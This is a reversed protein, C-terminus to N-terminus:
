TYRRNTNNNEQGLLSSEEDPVASKNPAATTANRQLTVWIAAGIILASGVFSEVPPTTGWVVREIILAFVMQMYILNTARGAKERQLGETLLVQLLFGSVGISLLLLWQATSQPVKLGLDPHVTLVLFSTVTASVAFYNVSVLSHVRKGIVRITAYALAASFAGVIACIVAISREAPTAPVPAVIGGAMDMLPSTSYQHASLGQSLQGLDLNGFLFSPRAIFLVGAFAIVGALAEKVTFPEGLVVWCVFATITPVLFSIITADSIDLFTLSYYSGFLGLTGALGRLLLLGRVEPPGLPFGPVKKYWLYFSGVSGTIIMRVFIIQLAHFKTEFGTALLRTTMSMLSGFLQALFVFFLGINTEYFTKLRHWLGRESRDSAAPEATCATSDADDQRHAAESSMQSADEPDMPVPPMHVLGDDRQIAAGGTKQTM